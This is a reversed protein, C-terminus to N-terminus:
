PCTVLVCVGSCDYVCDVAWNCSVNWAADPATCDPVGSVCSQTALLSTKVYYGDICKDPKNPTCWVDHWRYQGIASVVIALAGHTGSRSDCTPRTPPCTAASACKCWACAEGPVCNNPISTCDAIKAYGTPCSGCVQMTEDLALTSQGISKPDVGDPAAGCGVLAVMQLFLATRAGRGRM